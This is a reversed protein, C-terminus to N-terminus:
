SFQHPFFFTKLLNIIRQQAASMATRPQMRGMPQVGLTFLLLLHTYFLHCEKAIMNYPSHKLNLIRNTKAIKTVTKCRTCKFDRIMLCLKIKSNHFLSFTNLYKKLRSTMVNAQKDLCGGWGLVTTFKKPEEM